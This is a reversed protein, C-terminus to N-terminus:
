SEEGGKPSKLLEPNEYINGIVEIDWLENDPWYDEIQGGELVARVVVPNDKLHDFMLGAGNNMTKVIVATGIWTDLREDVDYFRFKVIDDFFMEKGNKDELGTYKMLRADKDTFLVRSTNNKDKPWTGTYRWGSQTIEFCARSNAKFMRKMKLHWARLKIEEM